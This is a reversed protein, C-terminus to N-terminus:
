KPSCIGARVHYLTWLTMLSKKAWHPYLGELYFTDIQDDFQHHMIQSWSGLTLEQHYRGQSKPRWKVLKQEDIKGWLKYLRAQGLEHPRIKERGPIEKSCVM